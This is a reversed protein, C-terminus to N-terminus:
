NNPAGADVWARIQSISCEDIQPNGQPMQSAGGEWLVSSLLTGYTDEGDLAFTSIVSYDYLQIGAGADATGGHCSQCYQDLIAKIEVSYRVDVSDCTVIPYVEDAKDYTCAFSTVLVVAFLAILAMNTKMRNIKKM